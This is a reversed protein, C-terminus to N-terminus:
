ARAAAASHLLALAAALATGSVQAACLQDAVVTAGEMIILFQLGLVEPDPAEAARAIGTFLDRYGTLHRTAILNVPAAHHQTAANGIACGRFGPSEYWPRVRRGLRATLARVGNTRGAIGEQRLGFADAGSPRGPRSTRATGRTGRPAVSAHRSHLAELANATPKTELASGPVNPRMIPLVRWPHAIRPAITQAIM